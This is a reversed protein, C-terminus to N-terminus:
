MHSAASFAWYICSGRITEWYDWSSPVLIIWESAWLSTFDRKWPGVTLLRPAPTLVWTVQNNGWEKVESAATDSIPGSIILGGHSTVWVQAPYTKRSGSGLAVEQWEGPIDVHYTVIGHSIEHRQRSCGKEVMVNSYHRLRCSFVWRALVNKSGGLYIHAVEATPWVHWPCGKFVAKHCELAYKEKWIQWGM